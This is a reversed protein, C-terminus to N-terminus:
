LERTKQIKQFTMPYPENTTLYNRSIYWVVSKLAIPWNTCVVCHIALLRNLYSIPGNHQRRYRWLKFKEILSEHQDPWEFRPPLVIIQLRVTVTHGLFLKSTCLRKFRLTANNHSIHPWKFQLVLINSLIRNEIKIIFVTFSEVFNRWNKTKYLRTNRM